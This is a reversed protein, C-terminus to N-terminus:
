HRYRLLGTVYKQKRRTSKRIMPKGHIKLRNNKVLTRPTGYTIDDNLAFTEIMIGDDNRKVSTNELSRFKM